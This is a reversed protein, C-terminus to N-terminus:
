RRLWDASVINGHVWTDDVNGTLVPSGNLVVTNGNNQVNELVISNGASGSDYSSVLSGVGDASSDILLLSGGTGSADIGTTCYQFFSATFVINTGGTIVGTTCGIFTINKFAWQQGSLSM